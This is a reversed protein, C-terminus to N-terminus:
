QTRALVIDLPTIFVTINYPDKNESFLLEEAGSTTSQLAKVNSVNGDLYDDDEGWTWLYELVKILLHEPLGSQKLARVTVADSM